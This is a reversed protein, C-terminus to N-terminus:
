LTHSVSGLQVSQVLTDETGATASGTGAVPPISISIQTWSNQHLGVSPDNVASISLLCLSQVPESIGETDVSTVGDHVAGLGAGLAEVGASGDGLDLLEQSTDGLLSFRSELSSSWNGSSHLLDPTFSFM